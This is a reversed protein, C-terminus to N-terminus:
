KEALLPSKGFSYNIRRMHTFVKSQAHFFAGSKEPAKKTNLLQADYM